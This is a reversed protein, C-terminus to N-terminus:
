EPADLIASHFHSLATHNPVTPRPMLYYRQTFNPSSIELRKPSLSRFKSFELHRGAAMKSKQSFFFFVYGSTKPGRDPVTLRKDSHRRPASIESAYKPAITERHGTLFHIMSTPKKLNVFKEVSPTNSTTVACEPPTPSTRPAVFTRVRCVPRRDSTM